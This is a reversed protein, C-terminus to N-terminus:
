VMHSKLQKYSLCRHLNHTELLCSSDNETVRHRNPVYKAFSSETRYIGRRGQRRVQCTLPLIHIVPNNSYVSLIIRLFRLLSHTTLSSSLWPQSGNSIKCHYILPHTHLHISRPKREQSCQASLRSFTMLTDHPGMPSAPHFVPFYSVRALTARWNCVSGM